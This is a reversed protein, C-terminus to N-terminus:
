QEGTMKECSATEILIWMKKFFHISNNIEARPQATSLMQIAKM